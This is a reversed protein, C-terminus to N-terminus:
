DIPTRIKLGSILAVDGDSADTDCLAFYAGDPSLQGHITDEDTTVTLAGDDAVSYTIAFGPPPLTGTSSQELQVFGTGDGFLSLKGSAVSLYLEENLDDLEGSLEAFYFTGDADSNDMGSSKRIGILRSTEGDDDLIYFIGTFLGHSPTLSVRMAFADYDNEETMEEAILLQGGPLKLMDLTFPTLDADAESSAIPTIMVTNASSVSMSLVETSLYYDHSWTITNYIDDVSFLALWYTGSFPTHTSSAQILWDIYAYSAYDPGYSTLLAAEEHVGLYGEYTDFSDNMLITGLNPDFTSTGAFSGGGSENTMFTLTDGNNISLYAEFAFYSKAAFGPTDVIDESWYYLGDFTMPANDGGLVPEDRVIRYFRPVQVSRAASPLDMVSWDEYWDQLNPSWEIRYGDAPTTSSDEWHVTGDPEMQTIALQTQAYATPSMALALLCLASTVSHLLKM